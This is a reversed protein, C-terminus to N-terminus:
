NLFKGLPPKNPESNYSSIAGCVGIRGFKNMNRVVHYSFEGGVQIILVNM